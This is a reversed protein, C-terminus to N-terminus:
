IGLKELKDNRYETQIVSGIYARREKLSKFKFGIDEVEGNNLIYVLRKKDETWLIPVSITDYSINLEKIRNIIYGNNKVFLTDCDIYVIQDGFEIILDKYFLDLYETVCIADNKPLKGFFGNVFLKWNYYEDTLKLDKRNKLFWRIKEISEDKLIGNDFLQVIISAYLNNFRVCILEKSLGKKYEENLYCTGRIETQKGLQDLYKQIM